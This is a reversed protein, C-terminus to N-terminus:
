VGNDLRERVRQRMSWTVAAPAIRALRIIITLLPIILIALRDM